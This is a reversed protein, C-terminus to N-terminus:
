QKEGDPSRTGFAAAASRAPAAPGDTGRTSDRTGRRSRRAAAQSAAPRRRSSAVSGLSSRGQTKCVLVLYLHLPSNVLPKCYEM